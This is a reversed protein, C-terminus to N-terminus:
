SGSTRASSPATRSSRDEDRGQDDARAPCRGRAPDAATPHRAQGRAEAPGPAERGARDRRRRRRDIPARRCARRHHPRGAAGCRRLGDPKALYDTAGSDLGRVRDTVDGRATVMIVPLGPDIARIAGLVAFGDMGPLMVDLLVVDPQEIVIRDLVRDGRAEVSVTHGEARLGKEIFAAILAEDEVVLIQM